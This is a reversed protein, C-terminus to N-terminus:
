EDEEELVTDRFDKFMNFMYDDHLDNDKTIDLAVSGLFLAATLQNIGSDDILPAIKQNYLDKMRSIDKAILLATEDNVMM